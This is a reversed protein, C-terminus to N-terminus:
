PLLMYYVGLLIVVLLALSRALIVKRLNLSINSVLAIPVAATIVLPAIILLCYLLILLVRVIMSGVHVSIVGLFILYPAATCLMFSWSVLVGYIFAGVYLWWGSLKQVWSPLCEGVRCAATESRLAERLDLALLIISLAVVIALLIKYHALISSLALGVIVYGCYVGSIFFGPLAMRWFGSPNLTASYLSLIATTSIACLNLSDISAYVALLAILQSLEM